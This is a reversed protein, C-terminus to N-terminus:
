NNRPRGNSNEGYGFAWHIVEKARWRPHGKGQGSSPLRITKPFDPLCAYRTLVQQPSVKLFGAVEKAGWIDIEVPYSPVIKAALATAIQDLTEINLDM